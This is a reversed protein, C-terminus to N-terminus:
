RGGSVGVAPDRLQLLEVLGAALCEAAGRVVPWAGVNGPNLIARVKQKLRALSQRSPSAVMYWHGDKRFRHPGFTYGLFDFQEERARRISTKAENLALGLRTMVQRTWALAERARHHSLIVFDDAYSVVCAELKEGTRSLRWHKLFRNMYLNALLPSIVGGQPTGCTSRKGGTLRRRGQDDVEEVPTKLWMKILALVHRDSLRRAVSKPSVKGFIKAISTQGKRQPKL